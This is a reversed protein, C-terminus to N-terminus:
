CNYHWHDSSVNPFANPLSPRQATGNKEEDHARFLEDSPVSATGGM